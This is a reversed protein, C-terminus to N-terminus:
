WGGVHETAVDCPNRPASGVSEAGDYVVPFYVWDETWVTFPCGNIGGYGHDFEADLDSVFERDGWEDPDPQPPLAVRHPHDWADGHTAMERAILERWTAM